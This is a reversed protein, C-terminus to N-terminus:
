EDTETGEGHTALQLVTVTARDSYVHVGSGQMGETDYTHILGVGRARRRYYVFRFALCAFVGPTYFCDRDCRM